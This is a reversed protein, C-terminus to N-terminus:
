RFTIVMASDVQTFPRSASPTVNQMVVAPMSREMPVVMVKEQTILPMANTLQPKGIQSAIRNPKKIPASQPATLPKAIATIFSGGNIAVSAICIIVM